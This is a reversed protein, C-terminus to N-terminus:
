HCVLLLFETTYMGYDYDHCYFCIQLKQGFQELWIFVPCNGNGIAGTGWEGKVYVRVFADNNIVHLHYIGTLYALGTTVFSENDVVTFPKWFCAKQVQVCLQM